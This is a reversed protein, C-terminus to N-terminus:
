RQPLVKHENLIDVLARTFRARDSQDIHSTDPLELNALEPHDQFHITTASTAEALRDWYRERPYNERDLQWHRDATPMRLFVVRGGREQITSVAQEIRELDSLWRGPSPPPHAEYDAALAQTFHERLGPVDAQEYDAAITRDSELTTYSKPPPQNEIWGELRRVLNFPSGVVVLRQQLFTLLRREIRRQPGFDRHYHRVWPSSMDHHWHALGRADVAVMLVGAFDEDAALDELVAVPYHGNIALLTAEWDPLTDEFARTSFALQIRSAGIVTFNHAQDVNVVRHRHAAWLDRDDYLAPTFGRERWLWEWGGVAAAAVLGAIVIVAIAQAKGTM